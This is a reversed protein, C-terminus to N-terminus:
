YCPISPDISYFLFSIRYPISQSYTAIKIKLRGRTFHPPTCCRHYSSLLTTKPLVFEFKNSHNSWINDRDSTRSLPLSLTSLLSYLKGPDNDILTRASVLSFCPSTQALSLVSTTQDECTLCTTRDILKLPCINKPTPSNEAPPSM